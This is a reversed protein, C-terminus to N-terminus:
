PELAPPPHVLPFEPLDLPDGPALGLDPFPPSTPGSRDAYRCDDGLWRCAFGRRRVPAHNPSAGHLTLFSFALADGPELDWGLIRYSDRRAEIDPMEEWDPRVNLAEGNFLKPVFWRGWRHSGAIFEVGRSAPVPDLAVWLSCTQEGDVCYYPQDHHWPTPSAAGPEKVLVHDHFLRATRSGMLRAAFAAAPSDVLFERYAEIRRWNCYDSFFPADDPAARRRRAWPGPDALNAEVGARLREVWGAFVERLRVAGDRRFAEVLDVTLHDDTHTAPSM